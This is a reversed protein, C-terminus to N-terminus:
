LLICCNNGEATKMFAKSQYSLEASSDMLDELKEGRELLQDISKILIQKTEGLDKNIKAIDDAQEPDQYKTILAQLQPTPLDTPQNIDKWKQGHVNLFGDLAKLMFSQAVRQPYDEDTCVAVAIGEQKVIVHCLHEKHLIAHRDGLKSHSVAQSSVFQLM